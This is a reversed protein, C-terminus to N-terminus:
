QVSYPNCFAYHDSLFKGKFRAAKRVFSRCM